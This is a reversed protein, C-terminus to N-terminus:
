FSSRIFLAIKREEKIDVIKLARESYEFSNVAHVSTFRIYIGNGNIMHM